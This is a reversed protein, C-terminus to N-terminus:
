SELFKILYYLLENVPTQIKHKKGLELIKGNLFDIETKRGKIIDQCMSSYNTYSSIKKAIEKEFGKKFFIGEAAAVRICERIIKERVPKLARGWIENNRVRFLATLPNLLCNIVLKKWIEKKMEKALKVPLGSEEFIEAIRKGNNTLPLITKANGFKIRGPELFEAFILTIGRLVQCKKGVIKRVLDENGLGNQLVLIVTDKKLLKKIESIAKKSQHAKTTLLILTNPPIKRIKEEAKVKFNKNIDGSIRLGNSKITLIHEKEGILVVDNKKSLLAGYVNGIAGAGLIFIKNFGM